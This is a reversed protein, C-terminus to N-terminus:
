KGAILDEQSFDYWLEKRDLPTKPSLLPNPVKIIRRSSLKAEKLYQGYYEDFMASLTGDEIMIELGAEIREAVRPAQPSVYIYTPAPLHLALTPEVVLDLENKRQDLEKYIENVGRPLFDFRGGDLMLFMGHYKKGLVVDFNAAELIGTTSWGTRSGVKLARLDNATKVNRFKNVNDKHVLLLRYNLLGRRIPIRVPTTKEDWEPSALAIYINVIEGENVVERARAGSMKQIIVKNFVYPGYEPVSKDLAALIVRRKYETRPDDAKNGAAWKIIDQASASSTFLILASLILTLCKIFKM